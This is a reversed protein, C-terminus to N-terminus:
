ITRGLLDLSTAVEAILRESSNVLAIAEERLEPPYSTQRAM